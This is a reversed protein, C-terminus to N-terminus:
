KELESRKVIIKMPPAKREMISDRILKAQIESQKGSKMNEAVLTTYEARMNELRQSLIVTKRANVEDFYGIRGQLVLLFVIWLLYYFYAVPYRHDEPLNRASDAFLRDLPFLRNLWNFLKHQNKGELPEPMKKAM